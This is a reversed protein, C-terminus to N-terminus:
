MGEMHIHATLLKLRQRNGRIRLSTQANAARM